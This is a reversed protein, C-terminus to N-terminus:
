SISLAQNQVTICHNLFCLFTRGVGSVAVPETSFHSLGKLEQDSAEAIRQKLRTIEGLEVWLELQLELEAQDAVQM